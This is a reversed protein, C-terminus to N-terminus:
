PRCQKCPSYGEGILEERSGTVKRRNEERIQKVSSCDPRHFKKTNTNLIYTQELADRSCDTQDEPGDETAENAGPSGSQTSWTIHTGDSQATVTGDEDTRFVRCGARKLKDMTEKDPHGYPNDKGCQIVGYSPSVKKLFADTTSTSSGHHDVKLIDSALLEGSAAMDEEAEREADGCMLFSNNGYVLRIGVSWNNLSAGYDKLPSVITFSADGLPYSTGPVPPTVTLGKRSIADLLDEFTRSTHEVPPLIVAQVNFTDIVQDLGGIHDSHPHTGIVYDLGTVGAQKLYRIVRDAQDNEGGDVLMFHGEAEALICDGQGVDIFHVKLGAAPSSQSTPIGSSSHPVCTCGGLILVFAALVSLLLIRVHYNRTMPPFRGKKSDINQRHRRKFYRCTLIACAPM